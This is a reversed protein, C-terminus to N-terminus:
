VEEEVPAVYVPGNYLGGLSIIIRPRQIEASSIKWRSGSLTVYRMNPTNDIAFSDAIISIRNEIMLDSNVKPGDEWRKASRLIDGTYSKETVVEEHVGAKAEETEVFGITGYFKAM